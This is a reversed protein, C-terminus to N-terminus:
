PLPPLTAAHREFALADQDGAPRSEDARRERTLEHVSVLDDRDVVEVAVRERLAVEQLV